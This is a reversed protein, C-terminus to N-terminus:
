GEVSFSGIGCSRTPNLDTFLRVRSHRALREAWRRKLYRLRAAKRDVGLREQFTLADAMAVQGALSQGGVWEFKRIDRGMQEFSPMLPWLEPILERRVYLFGTGLPGMLWKHGSSGYYDCGLQRVDVPIHGLGHAGDVITRIGRSRAILCVERVPLIHGTLWSLHQFLIVRTRPTVAREFRAVIEESSPYPGLLSVERCIIRDRRVRQQWTESMSFYDENTTLVEDGARLDLGLQVTQLAETASRMLALEEADCGLLTAARRRLAERRPEQGNEPWGALHSPAGNVREIERELAEIVVRPSPSYVHRLNVLGPELNFANRVKRWFGEDAATAEASAVPGTALVEQLKQSTDPSWGVALAATARASQRLFARRDAM